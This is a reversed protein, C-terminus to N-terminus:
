NLNMRDDYDGPDDGSPSDLSRNLLGTLFGGCVMSIYVVKINDTWLSTVSATAIAGLVNIMFNRLFDEFM